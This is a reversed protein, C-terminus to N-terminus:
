RIGIMRKFAIFVQGDNDYDLYERVLLEKGLVNKKLSFSCDVRDLSFNDCEKFEIMQIEDDERFIHLEKEEDFLYGELLQEEDIGGFAETKGFYMDSINYIVAYQYNNIDVESISNKRVTKIM